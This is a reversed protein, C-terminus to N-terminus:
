FLAFFRAVLSGEWRGTLQRPAIGDDPDWNELACRCLPALDAWLWCTGGPLM